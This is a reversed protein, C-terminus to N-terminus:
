QNLQCEVYLESLAEQFKSSSCEFDLISQLVASMPEPLDRQTLLVSQSAIEHFEECCLCAKEILAKNACEKVNESQSWQAVECESYCELPVDPIEDTRACLYDKLRAIHDLHQLLAAIGDFSQITTNHSLHGLADDGVGSFSKRHAYGM